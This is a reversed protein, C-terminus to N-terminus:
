EDAADSTYLLCVKEGLLAGGGLNEFLNLPDSREEGPFEGQDARVTEVKHQLIPFDDQGFDVRAIRSRHFQHFACVAQRNEIQVDPRDGLAAQRFKRIKFRLFVRHGRKVAFRNKERALVGRGRIRLCPQSAPEPIDGM